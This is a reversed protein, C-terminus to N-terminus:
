SAQDEKDHLTRLMSLMKKTLESLMRKAAIRRNAVCRWKTEEEESNLAVNETSVVVVNKPIRKNGVRSEAEEANDGQQEQEPLWEDFVNSQEVVLVQEESVEQVDDEAAEETARIAKREARRGSKAAREEKSLKKKSESSEGEDASKKHKRKKSKKREQSSAEHFEVDKTNLTHAVGDGVTPEAMEESLGIDGVCNDTVSPTVDGRGATVDETGGVSPVDMSTMGDPDEMATDRVSPTATEVM